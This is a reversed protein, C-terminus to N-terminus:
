SLPGLNYKYKSGHSTSLVLPKWRQFFLDRHTSSFEVKVRFKIAIVIKQLVLDPALFSKEYVAKCRAMWIYSKVLSVLFMILSVQSRPLDENLIHYTVLNRTCRQTSNFSLHLISDVWTWLFAALQCEYFIHQITETAKCEPRPCQATQGIGWANLTVATMVVGHAIKWALERTKNGALDCHVGRWITTWDLDPRALVAKPFVPIRSELLAEIDKTALAAWNTNPDVTHVKKALTIIKMYWPPLDSYHPHSNRWISPLISRLGDACFANMFHHCPKDKAQAFRLSRLLFADLKLPVNVLGWGGKTLPLYMVSRCIRESRGGWFFIFMEKVIANAIKAPCPFLPAVYYFLPLLLSNLLVSKGVMSVRRSKWAVLSAKFKQLLITWNEHAMDINGLLVGNIKLSQNTWPITAFQDSRSGWAGIWLGKTKDHNLRSGSAEGFRDAIRLISTVSKLDSVTATADDAYQLLKCQIQSGPLSFGKVEISSRVAAAFPEVFLVYLLPSLPCGQRVGRTPNFSRSLHGNVQLSCSIDTYLTQIYKIFMPGFNMCTLVQWLFPWEVRDFAKQQDLSLLACPWGRANSIAVIDRMIAVNEHIARGPVGCTQFPSVLSPMVLKLRNCLSKSLIKYDCNLLSIPRKNGPQLHADQWGPKTEDVPKKILTIIGHKQSLTLNGSSLASNLIMTLDNGIFEWCALYFEKPLGDSGPTKNNPMAKLATLLELPSLPAELSDRELMTLHLDIGSLFSTQESTNLQGESTLIKHFFAVLVNSIENQSHHTVGNSDKIANIKKDAGRKRERGLFFATCKEDSELKEARARIMVGELHSANAQSLLTKINDLKKLTNVSRDGHNLDSTISDLESQLSLIKNRHAKARERGHHKLRLKIRSKVMDWWEGLSDFGPQLSKWVLYNEELDRIIMPDQLLKTNCKWVGRGQVPASPISLTVQVCDHDSLHYPTIVTSTTISSSIYFRDLRSAKTNNADRWTFIKSDPHEERWSDLLMLKDVLLGLDRGGAFSYSSSSSGGMKDFEGLVCNFDGGLLIPYNGYMFNQLNKFFVSRQSPANPAYVNVLLMSFNNFHVICAVVRGVNDRRIDDFRCDAKPSFLIGVGKSSNSGLSWIAEGRWETNWQQVEDLTSVHSEQVFVIDHTNRFHYFFQQRKAYDKLGNANVTCISLSSM